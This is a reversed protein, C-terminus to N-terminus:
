PVWIWKFFTKLVKEQVPPGKFLTLNGFADVGIYAKNKIMTSLDNVKTGAM